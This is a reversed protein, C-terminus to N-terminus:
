TGRGLQLHILATALLLQGMRLMGWDGDGTRGKKGGRRWRKSPPSSSMLTPFGAAAAESQERELIISSSRRTEHPSLPRLIHDLRM